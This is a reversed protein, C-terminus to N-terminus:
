FRETKIKKLFGSAMLKNPSRHNEESTLLLGLAVSFTCQINNELFDFLAYDQSKHSTHNIRNPNSITICPIPNVSPDLEDSIGDQSLHIMKM